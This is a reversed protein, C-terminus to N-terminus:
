LCIGMRRLASVLNVSEPSQAISSVAYDTDDSRGTESVCEEFEVVTPYRELGLSVVTGMKKEVKDWVKFKPLM